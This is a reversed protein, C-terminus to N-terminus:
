GSPPTLDGDEDYRPAYKEDFDRAMMFRIAELKGRIEFLLAVIFGAILLSVYVLAWAAWAEATMTM